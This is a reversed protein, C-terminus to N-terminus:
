SIVFVLPNIEMIGIIKCNSYNANEKFHKFIGLPLISFPHPIHHCLSCCVFLCVVIWLVFLVCFVAVKFFVFTLSRCSYATGSGSTTNNSFSLFMMRYPFRRPCWCTYIFVNISGAITSDMNIIDNMRTITQPRKSNLGTPGLDVIELTM